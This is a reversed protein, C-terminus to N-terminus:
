PHHDIQVPADPTLGTSHRAPVVVLQHIRGLSHGVFHRIVDIYFAATRADKGVDRHIGPHNRALMAKLWQALEGAWLSGDALVWLCADHQNVLLEAIATLRHQPYRASLFPIRRRALHLTRAV